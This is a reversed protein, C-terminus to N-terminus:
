PPQPGDAQPKAKEIEEATRKELAEIGSRLRDGIGRRSPKEGSQAQSPSLKERAQAGLEKLDIAQAKDTIGKLKEQAQAGLRELDIQGAKSLAKDVEGRMEDGLSSAGSVMRETISGKAPQGASLWPVFSFLAVVIGITVAPEIIRRIPYKMKKLNVGERLPVVALEAGGAVLRGINLLVVITAGLLATPRNRVAIGVLLVIIFPTSILYSTQNLWRFAKQVKGTQGRWFGLLRSDQRRARGSVKPARGAVAYPKLDEAIAAPVDERKRGIRMRDVTIPAL